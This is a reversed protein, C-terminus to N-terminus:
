RRYVNPAMLARVHVWDVAITARPSTTGRHLFWGLEGESLPLDVALGIIVQDNLLFTVQPGSTVAQFLNPDGLGPAFTLGSGLEADIVDHFVEGDFGRVVFRGGSGVAFCVFRGAKPGAMPRRVFIGYLDDAAGEVLSIQTQLVADGFSRSDLPLGSAVAPADATYRLQGDSLVAGRPVAVPTRRLAEADAFDVGFLLPPPDTPIVFGSM